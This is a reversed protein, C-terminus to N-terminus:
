NNELKKIRSDIDKIRNKIKAQDKAVDNADDEMVIIDNNMKEVSADLAKISNITAFFMEDWRISKYGDPDNVVANSFYKELIFFANCIHLVTIIM